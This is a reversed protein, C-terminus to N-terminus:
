SSRLTRSFTSTPVIAAREARASLSDGAAPMSAYKSIRSRCATASSGTRCSETPWRWSTETARASAPRGAITKSSSGAAPSSTVSLRQSAPRSRAIRSAPVVMTMTSWSM